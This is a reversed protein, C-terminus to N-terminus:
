VWSRAYLFSCSVLWLLWRFFDDPEIWRKILADFSSNAFDEEAKYLLVQGFMMSEMLDKVQASYFYAVAAGGIHYIVYLFVVGLYQLAVFLFIRWLAVAPILVVTWKVSVTFLLAQYIFSSCYCCIVAMYIISLAFTFEFRAVVILGLREPM